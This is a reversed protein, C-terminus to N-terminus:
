HQYTILVKTFIGVEDISLIEKSFQESTWPETYCKTIHRKMLLLNGITSKMYEFVSILKDSGDRLYVRLCYTMFAGCQFMKESLPSYRQFPCVKLIKRRQLM